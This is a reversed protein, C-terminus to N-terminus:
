KLQIKRWELKSVTHKLLFFMDDIQNHIKTHLLYQIYISM